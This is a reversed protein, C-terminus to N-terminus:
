FNIKISMQIFRPGIQVATPRGFNPDTLNVNIGGFLTRNFLNSAESRLEIDFPQDGTRVAIRKVLSVNEQYVPPTRMENLYAAATGFQLPGPLSFASSNFWRVNPNDPDLSTRDVGTRIASGTLNVRLAPNFLYAALSNPFTPQLLTGSRYQQLGAITWGGAVMRMFKGGHRGFPLDWTYILNLTHPTDFRQLSRENGLNYQDQVAIGSGTQTEPGVRTLAKEWTYSALVALSRFRRELKTQLANYNSSGNGLYTHTINLYQPYPRLSQALTGTFTPFPKSYGAAVVRPDTINLPLLDGLKLQSPNVQNFPTLTNLHVSYMGTYAVDALLGLPLERQVNFNWNM